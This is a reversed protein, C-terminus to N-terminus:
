RPISDLGSCLHTSVMVALASQAHALLLDYAPAAALLMTDGPRIGIAQRASHPLLVFQNSRVPHTGHPTRTLVLTDPLATIDLHDGVSWGLNTLLTRASIRGSRDIHGLAYAM